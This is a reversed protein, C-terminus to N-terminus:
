APRGKAPKSTLAVAATASIEFGAFPLGAYLFVLLVLPPLARFTDVWAWLPWAVWRSRITSLLALLTGGLLGLPVVLLSLLITQQLGMWLIPWADRLIEWSFFAQLFDDFTM